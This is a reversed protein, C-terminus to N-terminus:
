LKALHQSRIHAVAAELSPDDGRALGAYQLTFGNDTLQAKVWMRRRPVFLSALLGVISALASVLVGRASPDQKLEVAAYRPVAELTITGMGEPLDVTEGVALALSQKEVQRGTLQQLKDTNLSYVSQPIGSNIGLDGVFVDLTLLPKNLDPYSSAFAGSELEAVTPYFFGRLGVQTAEGNHQLGYPIKIVGVSTLNLDQPIFLTSESFVVEGTSNRVTLKPAYGNQVLFIPAGTSRMPHNVRISDAYETGDARTVSVTARFDKAIGVGSAFGDEPEVYDVSLDDLKVRFPELHAPDFFRGATFSDYDILSNVLSEGEVVAKQANFSFGAGIAVSVLVGVLGVHFVLNGTERLYGREASVSFEKAGARSVTEQVSTRYRMGSLLEAAKAIVRQATEERETVSAEPNQVQFETYGVMRRLQAPTKAPDARLAKIHHTIRPIICGILSIFLLLYIATFWVSSYVDFAQIPFADLVKFLEPNDVKFQEVGNPDAGRQPVLSGPVAAVALMLLLLLAVRMSSLQRWFWRVWSLIGQGQKEIEPRVRGSGDDYDDPRLM